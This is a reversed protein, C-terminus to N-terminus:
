FIAIGKVEIPLWYGKIYKLKVEYSGGALDGHSYTVQLNVLFNAKNQDFCANLIELGNEDFPWRFNGPGFRLSNWHLKRESSISPHDPIIMQNTGLLEFPKIGKPLEVYLPGISNTAHAYKMVARFASAMIQELQYLRRPAVLPNIDESDNIGDGDTDKKNPNTGIIDEYSDPLGDKDSDPLLNGSKDVQVEELQFPFRRENNHMREIMRTFSPDNTNVNPESQDPKLIEVCPASIKNGEVDSYAQIETLFVCIGLGFLLLFGISRKM